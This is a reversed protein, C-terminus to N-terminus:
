HSGSCAASTVLFHADAFGDNVGDRRRTNQTGSDGPEHVPEECHADTRPLRIHAEAGGVRSYHSVSGLASDGFASSQRPVIDLFM